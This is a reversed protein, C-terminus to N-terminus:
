KLPIEVSVYGSFYGILSSYCEWWSFIGNAEASNKIYINYETLLNFLLQLIQLYSTQNLLQNNM